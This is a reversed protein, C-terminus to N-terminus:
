GDEPVVQVSTSLLLPHYGVSGADEDILVLGCRVIARSSHLWDLRYSGDEQVLELGEPADLLFVRLAQADGTSLVQFNWSAPLTTSGMWTDGLIRPLDTGVIPSIQIPLEREFSAGTQDTVILPINESGGAAVILRNPRYELLGESSVSVSGLSPSFDPAIQWSIPTGEPDEALLQDRAVPQLASLLLRWQPSQQLQLQEPPSDGAIINIPRSISLANGNAKSLTLRLTRSRTEQTRSRNDFRCTRLLAQLDALRPTRLWHVVLDRGDRGNSDLGIRGVDEADSRIVMSGDSQEHLSLTGAAALNLQDAPDSAERFAIRVSGGLFDPEDAAQAEIDLTDFPLLGTDVADPPIAALPEIFDIPTTALTLSYDANNGGTEIPLWLVPSQHGHDDELRFAFGDSQTTAVEHTYLLSTGSSGDLESQSFRPDDPDLERLTGDAHSLTLNGASPATILRFSVPDNDPDTASLQTTSLAVTALVDIELAQLRTPVPPRNGDASAPAVHVYWAKAAPETMAQWSGNSMEIELAGNLDVALVDDAQLVDMASEPLALVLLSGEQAPLVQMDIEGHQQSNNLVRWTAATADVIRLQQRSHLYWHRLDELPVSSGPAPVAEWSASALRPALACLIIIVVCTIRANLM